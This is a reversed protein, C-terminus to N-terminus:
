PKLCFLLYLPLYTFREDKILNSECLVYGESIPYVESTVINNMANHRKFDKGSKVEIPLITGGSTQVVFDLEGQKKSRYYYLEFGHAKLEQAVLNEYISGYNVNVNRNLIALSTDKMFTSTLLGVDNMFLKFLNSEQSLKLPYLPESVNYVPLAVGADTLWIFCERYRDYRAHKNMKKLVFRRNQSNLESPILEYIDKIILADDSNYRAIDEKNRLVINEQIRRVKQLNGSTCFEDVAAPMGGIVLYEHLLTVLHDHIYDPVPERKEFAEKLLAFISASIGRATAYEEFDL